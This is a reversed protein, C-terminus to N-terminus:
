GNPYSPTPTVMPDIPRRAISGVFQLAMMAAGIDSAFRWHRMIQPAPCRGAALPELARSNASFDRSDPHNVFRNSLLRNSQLQDRLKV